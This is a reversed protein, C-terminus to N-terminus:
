WTPTWVAGATTLSASSTLRAPSGPALCAPPSCHPEARAPVDPQRALYRGRLYRWLERRAPTLDAHQFNPPLVWTSRSGTPSLPGDYALLEALDAAVKGRLDDDGGAM